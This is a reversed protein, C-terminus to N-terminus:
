SGSEFAPGSPSVKSATRGIAEALTALFMERDNDDAFIWEQRDGRCMVRAM